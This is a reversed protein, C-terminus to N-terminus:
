LSCFPTQYYNESLDLALVQMDSGYCRSPEGVGGLTRDFNGYAGGYKWDM